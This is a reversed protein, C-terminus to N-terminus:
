LRTPRGCGHGVRPNSFVPAVWLVGPTKSAKSKTVDFGPSAPGTLLIIRPGLTGSHQFGALPGGPKTLEKIVTAPDVETALAVVVEDTARLLPVKRGDAWYFDGANKFADAGNGSDTPAIETSLPADLRGRVTAEMTQETGGLLTAGQPQAEIPLPELLLMVVLLTLSRAKDTTM